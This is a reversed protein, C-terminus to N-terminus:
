STPSPDGATLQKVVDEYHILAAAGHESLRYVGRTEREFWGYYNKQLISGAKEVRASARIDSVRLAKGGHLTIACRIADQRYATVIKQRTVGATNPDGSRTTFEKKLRTQKRQNKRPSYPAPDLLVEIQRGSENEPDVFLLGLGLRRCLAITARRRRRWNRRKAPTDPKKVALYVDDSLKQRDVGQLVLELSFAIKLEIIVTAANDKQAVVDCGMVESKVEFGNDEFFRKVPAYLDTERTM